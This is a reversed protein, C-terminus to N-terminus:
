PTEDLVLEGEKPIVDIADDGWPAQHREAYERIDHFNRCKFDRSFDPFIHPKEGAKVWFYPHLETDASCMLKQRISDLCHGVHAQLVKESSGFENEGLNRYYEVNFYLSKRLLNLCHLQHLVAVFAPYGPGGEKETIHFRNREIGAAEAFEYPVILPRYQSGLDIWAADVEPSPQRRYINEKAFSINVRTPIYKIKLDRLLLAKFTDISHLCTRTKPQDRIQLLRSLKCEHQSTHFACTRDLNLKWLARSILLTTINTLIFATIIGFLWWPQRLIVAHRRHRDGENVETTPEDDASLFPVNYEEQPEKM